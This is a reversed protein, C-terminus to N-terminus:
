ETLNPTSQEAESKLYAQYDANDPDIGFSVRIGDEEYWIVTTGNLDDVNYKIM